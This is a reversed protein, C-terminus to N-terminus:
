VMNKKFVTYFYQLSLYGCMHSIEHVPLTLSNLLERARELKQTHIMTHLTQGTEDKFRRELNSRSIGVVDVVQEVKIGKCAHNRVYHMAQIVAPDTFSRHDTSRRAIVQM